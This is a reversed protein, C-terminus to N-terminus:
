GFLHYEKLTDTGVNREISPFFGRCESGEIEEDRRARCLDRGREDGDRRTCTQRSSFSPLVSSRTTQTGPGPESDTSRRLLHVSFSELVTPVRGPERDLTGGHLEVTM